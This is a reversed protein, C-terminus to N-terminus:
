PKTVKLRFTLEFNLLEGAAGGGGGGRDLSTLAIERFLPGLKEDTKLQKTYNGLLMAARQSNERVYGRVVIGAETWDITDIGIQEPRTRGLEAVFGTVYLQPKVLAFAQDIKASEVAYERQMYKIDAVEARNDGIRKEWDGIQHRLSWNLFGIWGTFLLTGFAVAAFVVNILFRTGVVNDEPLEAEIRLDVHWHESLGIPDRERSM